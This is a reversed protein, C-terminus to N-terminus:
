AVLVPITSFFDIGEGDWHVLAQYPPQQPTLIVFWGDKGELVLIPHKPQYGAKELIQKPSVM